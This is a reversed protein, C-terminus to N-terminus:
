HYEILYAALREVRLSGPLNSKNKMQLLAHLCLCDELTYGIQDESHMSLSLSLVCAPDASHLPLSSTSRYTTSKEM